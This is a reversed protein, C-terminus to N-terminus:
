SDKRRVKPSKGRSKARLVDRLHGNGLEGNEGIFLGWKPMSFETDVHNFCCLLDSEIVLGEIMM